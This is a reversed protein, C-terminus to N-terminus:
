IRGNAMAKEADKGTVVRSDKLHEVGGRACREKYNTAENVADFGRHYSRLRGTNDVVVAFQDDPLIGKSKVM